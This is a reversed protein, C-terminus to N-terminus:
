MKSALFDTAILRSVHFSSAAGVFALGTTAGTQEAMTYGIAALCFVAAVTSVACDVADIPKSNDGAKGTVTISQLIANVFLLAVATGVLAVCVTAFDFYELCTASGMAFWEDGVPCFAPVLIGALLLIAALLTSLLRIVARIDVAAM